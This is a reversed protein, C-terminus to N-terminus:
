KPLAEKPVMLPVEDMITISPMIAPGRTAPM